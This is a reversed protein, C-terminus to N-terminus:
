IGIGYNKVREWIKEYLDEMEEFSLGHEKKLRRTFRRIKREVERRVTIQGLWGEFLFSGIEEVLEKVGQAIGAKEGVREEVALFISYELDSLGLERQRRDIKRKERLIELGEEYLKKYDKTRQRWMEVLREVKDVLSEYVPKRQKEVLIIKRLTFVVTAAKEKESKANKIIEEITEADVIIPPLDREIEEIETTQHILELTKRFYKAVEPKEKEREVLKRYYSYVASLWKYDDLYKLKVTSSGLLEFLKRLRWYKSVFEKARGAEGTLLEVASVFTEREFKRDLGTFFSLAEEIEKQFEVDLEKVNWLAGEIDEENYIAFAKKFEKLIGVYDIILGAEKLGKYPRNTRAMAQLLRHEKLLKDLYMTQLIPADFGTLLMDTVILIKPYEEEKFKTIIRKRARALNSEGYTEAIESIYEAKDEGEKPDATMVVEVYKEPLLKKLNDRYMLCAKRSGAVVMAKFKGDLNELFHQAIDRSIKEIRDPKEFFTNIINIRRRLEPEVIERDEEPLEELTSNIFLDLLEKRLHIEGTLRPEYVIRVTFGDRISDTIFYRDLYLESPPYSFELYTDRQNKSIPTGTFAFAFANKFINKMQAALLGYQNRHAEDIFLVVNRRQAITGEGKTEIFTKVKSLKEPSFKQILTIFIGRKGRFEDHSIIKRLHEISEVKEASVMDLAAFEDQLQDALDIRDVVFFLTPNKMEEAYFLKHAAFIMTLTKGSGQWHWILGRNKEEENKLHKLVREVIKNAARYQMYRAMVKTIEGHEERVFTFNRIMDLLRAPSLMLAIADLPDKDDERWLYVKVEEAWPVIPFYRATAEAAVGIQVYRYLDPATNEYYKIQKFADQWSLSPDAPNKCEINVLPIGNVYLMIDTRIPVKGHYIVQNSVIFDNNNPNKYDFIELYKVVGTKELKIPIGYKLYRLVRKHGEPGFGEGKLRSVARQLDKESAESKNIRRLAELLDKEILSQRYDERPLEDAPVYRWDQEALRRILYEEVQHAEPKRTM